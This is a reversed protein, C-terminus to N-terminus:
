SGATSSFIQTNTILNAGHLSGLCHWGDTKELNKLDLKRVVYGNDRFYSSTERYLDGKPDAVFLSHREKM